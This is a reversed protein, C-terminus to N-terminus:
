CSIHLLFFYTSFYGIVRTAHSFFLFFGGVFRGWIWGYFCWSCIEWNAVYIKYKFRAVKEMSNSDRAVHRSKWEKDNKNRHEQAESSRKLQKSGACVCSTSASLHPLSSSFSVFHQSLSLSSFERELISIAFDIIDPTTTICCSKRVNEESWHRGSEHITQLMLNTRMFWKWQSKM